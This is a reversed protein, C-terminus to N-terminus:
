VTYPLRDFISQACHVRGWMGVPKTFVDESDTSVGSTSAHRFFLLATVGFNRLAGRRVTETLRKAGRTKKCEMGRGEMGGGREGERGRKYLFQDIEQAQKEM